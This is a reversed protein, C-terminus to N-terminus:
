QKKKTGSDVSEELTYSSISYNGGSEAAYLVPKQNLYVPYFRLSYLNTYEIDDFVKTRTVLNLTKGKVHVMNIAFKKLSGKPFGTCSSIALYRSKPCATVSVHDISEKKFKGSKLKLTDM